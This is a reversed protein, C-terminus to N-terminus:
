IIESVLIFKRRAIQMTAPKIESVITNLFSFLAVKEHDYPAPHDAEAIYMM